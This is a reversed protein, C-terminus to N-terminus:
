RIPGAVGRFRIGPDEIIIRDLGSRCPACGPFDRIKPLTLLRELCAVLDKFNGDPITVKMEAVGVTRKSGRSKPM